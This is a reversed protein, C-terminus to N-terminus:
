SLFALIIRYYVRAFNQKCKMKEKTLVHSQTKANQFSVLSSKENYKNRLTQISIKKKQTQIHILRIRM